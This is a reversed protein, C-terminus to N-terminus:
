GATTSTPQCLHPLDCCSPGMLAIPVLGAVTMTYVVLRGPVGCCACIQTYSKPHDLDVFQGLVVTTINIVVGMIRATWGALCLQLVLLALLLPTTRAAILTNIPTVPATCCSGPPVSTECGDQMVPPQSRESDLAWLWGPALAPVVYEPELRDGITIKEPQRTWRQRGQLFCFVVSVAPLRLAWHANLLVTKAATLRRRLLRAQRGRVTSTYKEFHDLRM